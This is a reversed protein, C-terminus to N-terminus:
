ESKPKNKRELAKMRSEHIKMGLETGKKAIDLQTSAADGKTQMQSKASDEKLKQQFRINQQATKQAHIDQNFKLDQQNKAADFKLKAQDEPKMQGNGNSEAQKQMQEQLRQAFGKVENMLKSLNQNLTNVLQRQNPDQAIAKIHEEMHTAMNQLGAITKQDTMGGSQVIQKIQLAMIGMLAEVYEIHNIGSKMSVPMNQMLTGSALQADHVSDTIKLPEEPVLSDARGPDDTIALTVDRLIQRQSDQDYLNRYEMLQQAIAMELTKNGAGMVRDPEIDWADPQLDKPGVGQRLCADRFAKVDVDNSEPNCFRRFIERYQWTQYNYAQALGQSVLSNMSNVEAMVQYKTKETKDRSFNQNQVWSASNDTIIQQNERMGLEVLQYNVQWRENPPIFQVGEDIIGRNFLEIKLAREADDLSKVRFYMCLQEFVAENFRCRLRNQLHCVAYLLFGLGRVSHYQFPSVASLDAFQFAVLEHINQAYRRNGPNFLFEGKHDKGNPREYLDGSKRAMTIKGGASEPTGWSDLIIRRRWGPEKKDDEYYYFDWCDLTPVQDGVYFGGDGKVRESAKEPSWVEPWNSGMLAQTETDIWDIARNVLPMNWGPDTDPGRTMKMLEPATWSRYLAFFPLNEFTLYTKAPILVDEVGIPDPRWGQRNKWGSPGIGHLVDGAFQSRFTEYYPLSRKMIRNIERTVVTQKKQRRHAQGYDTKCQFYNGPKLFAGYFQSRADHALRTGELFNVNVVLGNKEEEEKTNPPYGNFLENIRTRNLARPWDALRMQYCIMEVETADNFRM